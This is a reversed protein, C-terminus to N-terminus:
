LGVAHFPFRIIVVLVRPPAFSLPHWTLFQLVSMGASNALIEPPRQTAVFNVSFLCLQATWLLM